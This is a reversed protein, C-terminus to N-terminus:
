RWIQATPPPIKVAQKPVTVPTGGDFTWKTDGLAIGNDAVRINGLLWRLRGPTNGGGDVPVQWRGILKGTRAEFAILEIDTLAPLVGMVDDFGRFGSFRANAAADMYGCLMVAYVRQTDAAALFFQSRGVLVKDAPAGPALRVTKGADTLLIRGDGTKLDVHALVYPSDPFWGMGNSTGLAAVHVLFDEGRVLVGPKRLDRAPCVVPTNEAPKTPPAAPRTEAPTTPPSGQKKCSPLVFVLVALCLRACHTLM